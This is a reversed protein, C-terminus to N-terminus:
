KIHEIKNVICETKHQDDYTSTESRGEILIYDGKKYKNNIVNALVDWFTVKHTNTRKHKMGDQSKWSDETKIIINVVNRKDKTTNMNIDSVIIGGLFQKNM